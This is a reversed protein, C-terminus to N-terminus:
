HSSFKLYLPNIITNKKPKKKSVQSYIKILVGMLRSYKDEAVIPIGSVVIVHDFNTVPIKVEDYAKQEDVQDAFERYEELMKEVEGDDTGWVDIKKEEM